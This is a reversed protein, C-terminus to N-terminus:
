NNSNILDIAKEFKSECTEMFELVKTHDPNRIRFATYIHSNPRNYFPQIIISTHKNSYEGGVALRLSDYRFETGFIKRIEKGCKTDIIATIKESVSSTSPMVMTGIFEHTEIENLEYECDHKIIELLEKLMANLINIDISRLTILSNQVDIFVIVKEKQAMLQGQVLQKSFQYGHKTMSQVLEGQDIPFGFASLLIRYDFNQIKQSTDNKKM